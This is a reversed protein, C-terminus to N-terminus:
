HKEGWKFLLFWILAALFPAILMLPTIYKSKNAITYIGGAIVALFFFGEGGEYDRIKSGTIKNLIRVFLFPLLYIYVSGFVMLFVISIVTSLSM